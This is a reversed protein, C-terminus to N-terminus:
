MIKKIFDTSPKLLDLGSRTFYTMIDIIGVDGYNNSTLSAQQDRTDGVDTLMDKPKTGFNTPLRTDAYHCSTALENYM